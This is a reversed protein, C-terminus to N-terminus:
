CIASIYFYSDVLADNSDRVQVQVQHDSPSGYSSASPDRNSAWLNDSAWVSCTSVDRNFTILYTGTGTKSASVIGGSNFYITGPSQIFAYMPATYYGVVDGVLDASGWVRLTFANTCGAGRCLPINVQNSVNIAPGFNLLTATPQSGNFAWGRVFGTSGTSIGTLNIAVSTAYSPIGCNNLGGQGSLTGTVKFSRASDVMPTSPRTDFVRCPKIGTYNETQGGVPASRVSRTSTAPTTVPNGQPDNGGAANAATWGGVFVALVALIALLSRPIRLSINM